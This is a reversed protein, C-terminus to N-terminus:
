KKFLPLFIKNPWEGSPLKLLGWFGSTLTWSGEKVNGAIPQGITSKLTFDGNSFTSGGASITSWPITYPVDQASAMRFHAIVILAIVITLISIIKTIRKM